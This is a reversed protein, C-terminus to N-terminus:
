YIRDNKGKNVIRMNASFTCSCGCFKLACKTQNNSLGIYAGSMYFPYALWAGYIHENAAYGSNPVKPM